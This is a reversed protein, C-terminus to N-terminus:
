RLEELQAEDATILFENASFVDGNFMALVNASNLKKKNCQRELYRMQGLETGAKKRESVEIKKLDSYKEIPIVEEAEADIVAPEQIVPQLAKRKSRILKIVIILLVLLLIGLCILMPKPVDKLSKINARPHGEAENIARQLISDNACASEYQEKTYEANARDHGIMMSGIAWEVKAVINWFEANKGNEIWETHLAVTDAAKLAKDAANKTSSRQPYLSNRSVIDKLTDASNTDQMKTIARNLLTGWKLPNLYKWGCGTTTCVIVLVLLLVRLRKM